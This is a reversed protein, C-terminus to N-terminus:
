YCYIERFNTVNEFNNKDNISEGRRIIQSYMKERRKILSIELKFIILALFM